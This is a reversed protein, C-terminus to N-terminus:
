GVSVWLCICNLICCFCCCCSKRKFAVLFVSWIQHTLVVASLVMGLPMAHCLKIWLWRNFGESEAPQGSEKKVEKCKKDTETKSSATPMNSRLEECTELQGNSDVHTYVHLFISLQMILRKKLYWPIQYKKRTDLLHAKQWKFWSSKSKSM